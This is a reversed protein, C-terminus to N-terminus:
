NLALCQEPHNAIMYIAKGFLGRVWIFKGVVMTLVSEVGFEIFDLLGVFWM